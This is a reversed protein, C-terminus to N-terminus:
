KDTFAEMLPEFLYLRYPEHYAKPAHDTEALTAGFRVVIVNLSPIVLLIQHGAGSGFFADHPLKACDGERNSWWGIGCPGPTGVDSTTLRV